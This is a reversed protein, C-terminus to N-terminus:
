LNRLHFKGKQAPHNMACLNTTSTPQLILRQKKVSNMGPNIISQQQSPQLAVLNPIVRVWAPFLNSQPMLLGTSTASLITLQSFPVTDGAVPM